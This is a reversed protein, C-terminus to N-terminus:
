INNLERYQREVELVIITIGGFMLTLLFMWDSLVSLFAGIIIGVILIQFLLLRENM